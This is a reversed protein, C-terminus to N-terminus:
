VQKDILPDILCNDLSRVKLKLEFTQVTYDSPSLYIIYSTDEKTGLGIVWGNISISVEGFIRSFIKSFFELFNRVFFDLFIRSKKKFICFHLFHLFSCFHLFVYFVCFSSDLFFFFFIYFFYFFAFFFLQLKSVM